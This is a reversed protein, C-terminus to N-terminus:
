IFISLQFILIINFNSLVLSTLSSCGYFLNNMYFYETSINFNSLVLSTLSLCGYFMQEMNNVLSTNFHSLYIETINKCEYFMNQTNILNISDKFFIEVLNESQNFFYKSTKNEQENPNIYIKDISNDFSSIIASEGIGRVKLTIKSNQFFCYRFM